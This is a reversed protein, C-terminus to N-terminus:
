RQSMLDDPITRDDGPQCGKEMLFVGVKMAEKFDVSSVRRAEVGGGEFGSKDFTWLRFMESPVGAAHPCSVAFVILFVWSM